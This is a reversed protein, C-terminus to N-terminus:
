CRDRALYQSLYFACALGLVNVAEAAVADVRDGAKTVALEERGEVEALWAHVGESADDVKGDVRSRGKLVASEIDDWKLNSRRFYKELSRAAKNADKEVTSLWHEALRPFSSV